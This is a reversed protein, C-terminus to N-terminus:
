KGELFKRLKAVGPFGELRKGDPRVFTPVAEIGAKTAAADGAKTTANVFQVRAALDPNAKLADKTEMCPGCYPSAYLITKAGPSAKTASKTKPTTM